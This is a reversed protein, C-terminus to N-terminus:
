EQRSLLLAIDGPIVIKEALGSPQAALLRELANSPRRAAAHYFVELPIVKDRSWAAIRTQLDLRDSASLDTLSSVRLGPRRYRDDVEVCQELNADEPSCTEYKFPHSRQLFVRQGSEAQVCFAFLVSRPLADLDPITTTTQGRREIWTEVIPKALATTVAVYAPSNQDRVICLDPDHAAEIYQRLNQTKGGTERLPWLKQKVLRSGLDALLFPSSTREYHEVVMRRVNEILDQDVPSM